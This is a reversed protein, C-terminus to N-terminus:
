KESFVYRKIFISNKRFNNIIKIFQYAAAAILELLLAQIAGGRRSCHETM